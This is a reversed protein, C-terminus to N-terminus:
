QVPNDLWRIIMERKARSLDRTVPMYRADTVPVGFVKKIMSAKAVVDNYDSLDVYQKMVPYLNAYQQFIPEVDHTWTPTEPIEYGSWVLANLIQSPNGISGVPPATSGPGYTVGYVQGDIYARPDGPDAAQIPLEVTGDPGTSISLPFTLASTPQGAPSPGPIPGQTTQGQMQSPDYGLSIEQNATRQGFTTLYFTTNAKDGPNLRFVFQDARVWMGDLAEALLITQIGQDSRAVVCLPTKAAQALQDEDLTLTVIGATQGYWNAEKYGSVPGLPVPGGNTQLAVELSGLDVLPGGPSQTPLSNGLDILLSNGFVQAYATNVQTNAAALLARSALFRHPEGNVYPGISGVVRGFTFNASTADDDYGDVNFKISLRGSESVSQALEELFRSAASGSWDVSEIVSQYLAGFYSDPGGQPYRVFIDAFPTVAFNGRFGLSNAWNGVLLQFGWIESVMQQESDLDVLKGEVGAENDNVATGVIPDVTPDSCSTGDRYFVQQVTCDKFRWAATGTPNWWGNTGGSGPHQYNPKFTASDFHEPDNNVTSPDAQFQGAFILRPVNLYSM